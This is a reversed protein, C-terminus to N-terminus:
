FDTLVLFLITWFLSFNRVVSCPNKALEERLIREEEDFRAIEERQKQREQEKKQEEAEIKARHKADAEAQRKELDREAAALKKERELKLIMKETRQIRRQEMRREKEYSLYSRVREREAMSPTKWARFQLSGKVKKDKKGPKAQLKELRLGTADVNFKVGPPRMRGAKDLPLDNVNIRVEGLFDNAGVQDHDYIQLCLESLGTSEKSPPERWM